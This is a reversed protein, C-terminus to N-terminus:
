VRADLAYDARSVEDSDALAGLDDEDLNQQTKTIVEDGEPEHCPRHGGMRSIHRM